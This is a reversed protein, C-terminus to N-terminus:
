RPFEKIGFTAVQLKLILSPLSIQENSTFVCLPLLRTIPEQYPSNVMKVYVLHVM